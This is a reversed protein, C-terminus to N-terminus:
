GVASSGGSNSPASAPLATRTNTHRACDGARCWRLRARSAMTARPDRVLVLVQVGCDLWGQCGPRVDGQGGRPGAPSARREGRRTEGGEGGCGPLDLPFSNDLRDVRSPSHPAQCFQTLFAPDWCDPPGPNRCWRWLRAWHPFSLQQKREYQVFYIDLM